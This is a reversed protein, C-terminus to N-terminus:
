RTHRLMQRQAAEGGAATELRQALRQLLLSEERVRGDGGPGVRGLQDRGGLEARVGHHEDVLVGATVCEVRQGVLSMVSSSSRLVQCWTCARCDRRMACRRSAPSAIRTSREPVTIRVSRRPPSIAAPSRSSRMSMAWSTVVSPAARPRRARPPTRPRRARGPRPRPSDASAGAWRASASWARSAACVQGRARAARARPPGPPRGAPWAPGHQLCGSSVVRARRGPSARVLLGYARLCRASFRAM